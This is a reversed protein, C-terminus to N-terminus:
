VEPRSLVPAEAIHTAHSEHAHPTDHVGHVLTGFNLYFLKYRFVTNRFNTGGINAQNIFM